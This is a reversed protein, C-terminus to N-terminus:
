FDRVFGIFKPGTKPTSVSIRFLRIADGRSPDITLTLQDLDAPCPFRAVEFYRPLTEWQRLDPQEFALLLVWALSGLLPEEEMIENAIARKAAVRGVTKAAKLAAVKEESAAALYRTDTLTYTRGLLKEGAYIKTYPSTDATLAHRNTSDDAVRGNLMFLILEAGTHLFTDNASLTPAGEENNPALQGSDDIAVTPSLASAKRYRVRANAWDGVLELCLAAIYHSFADQPYEGVDDPKLTNIIRRAEVAADQRNGLGLYSLAAMVHLYTREFPYGRFMLANDNIIMSTAGRTVSLTENQELLDHATNFDIVSKDYQGAAQYLTGREMLFLIRDRASIKKEDLLTLAQRPDGNYFERRANELHSSACGTIILVALLVVWARSATSVSVAM